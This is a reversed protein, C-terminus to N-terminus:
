SAKGRELRDLKEQYALGEACLAKMDAGITVGFHRLVDLGLVMNGIPNVHWFDLMLRRYDATDGLRLREWRALHDILHTGTEKAVERVVGMYAPFQQGRVPESTAIDCLDASYYTQLVPTCDPMERCQRLITRLNEAFQGTSVKNEPNCDNGGCTVIVGHPQYLRVHQDFRELMGRSTDGSIGANITHHVRGYHQGLGVDLWDVWNHRGRSHLGLQTNSSGFAGIRTTPGQKLHQLLREM